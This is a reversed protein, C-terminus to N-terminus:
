KVPSGSSQIADFKLTAFQMSFWQVLLPTARATAIWLLLLLLLIRNNLTALSHGAALIIKRQTQEDLAIHDAGNDSTLAAGNTLNRLLAAGTDINM